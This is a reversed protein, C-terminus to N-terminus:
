GRPTPLLSSGMRWWTIPSALESTTSPAACYANGPVTSATGPGYPEVDFPLSPGTGVVSIMVCHHRLGVIEKQRNRFPRCLPCSQRIKMLWNRSFIPTRNPLGSVVVPPRAKM